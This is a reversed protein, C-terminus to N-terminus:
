KIYGLESLVKEEKTQPPMDVWEIFDAEIKMVEDELNSKADIQYEKNFGNNFGSVKAKHYSKGNPHKENAANLEIEIVAVNSKYSVQKRM